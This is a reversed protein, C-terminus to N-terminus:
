IPSRWAVMQSAIFFLPLSGFFFFRAVQMINPGLLGLGSNKWDLDEEWNNKRERECFVKVFSEEQPTFDYM